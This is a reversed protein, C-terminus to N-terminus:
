GGAIPPLLAVEDGERLLVDTKIYNKNVAISIQSKEFDLESYTDMLSKILKSSYVSGKEVADEELDVSVKSAGCSERLSGFLLVNIVLKVM